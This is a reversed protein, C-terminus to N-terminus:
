KLYEDVIEIECNTAYMRIKAGIPLFSNPCMHGFDNTKLIPFKYNKTIDLVIDEFETTINNKERMESDQFGYIYGVVIGKINEFVGIQKLSELGCIAKKVNVSYGEIFLISDKFNPFYETGALKLISSLNCGLLKGEAKGERICKRKSSPKIEKSANIIRSKFSEFSYEFDLDFGKGIKPDCGNFVVLDTKKNIALHLVDIDSMGIFIKPNRKINEYDILSLLQNATDGGQACYIAHIDKNSFMENLDQARDEPEGGSVGYKDVNFCNKSYITNLGLQKFTKVANEFYIKRDEKIPNSPTIIGITDGENLRKPIM